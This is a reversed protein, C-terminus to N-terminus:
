ADSSEAAPASKNFRKAWEAQRQNKVAKAAKIFDELSAVWSRIEPLRNEDLYFVVYENDKPLFSLEVLLQDQHVVKLDANQLIIHLGEAPHGVPAKFVRPVEGKQSMGPLSLNEGEDGETYEEGLEKALTRFTEMWNEEKLRSVQERINAAREASVPYDELFEQDAKDQLTTM